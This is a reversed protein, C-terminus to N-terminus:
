VARRLADPSPAPIGAVGRLTDRPALVEDLGTGAGKPYPYRSARHAMPWGRQAQGAAGTGKKDWSM